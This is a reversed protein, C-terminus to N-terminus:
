GLASVLGYLALAPLIRNRQNNEFVRSKKLKMFCQLTLLSDSGAQHSLGVVRNVNLAKAVKELGGQLGFFRFTHKIDFIKYGFFYVLQRMFSELDYPLPKQTLIKLLFGFDYASHFTIWNLGGFCNFVLGSNLIMMAFVRSYVRKGIRLLISVKSNLYNSPSVQSDSLTLGLQIINLADVNSKMYQYNIVPNGQQIIRKDPKFITGPFETDMAVFCYKAIASQILLLERKLDEAFVQRVIVAAM